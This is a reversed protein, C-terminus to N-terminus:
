IKFPRIEGLPSQRVDLSLGFKYFTKNHFYFLVCFGVAPLALPSLYPSQNTVVGDKTTGTVEYICWWSRSGM